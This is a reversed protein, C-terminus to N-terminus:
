PKVPNSVATQKRWQAALEKKGWAEYLDALAGTTEDVFDQNVRPIQEKRATLERQAELLLPEAEAYHKFGTLAQGIQKRTHFIWWDDPDKAMRLALCERLLTLAEDFRKMKILCAATQNMYKLRFPHEPKAKNLTEQLLPLADSFRGMKYYTTGLNALTTLTSEHEPGSKIRKHRLAEEFLPIAEAYRGASQYAVALNSMTTSTEPHDPGLVAKMLKIAEQFLAAAEDYRGAAFYTIGLKNMTTLVEPHNPGKLNRQQKLTEAFLAFARDLKNAQRYADALTSMHILTDDDDPGLAAKARGVAEEYLSLAEAVRGASLRGTAVGRMCWLTEKDDPGLRTKCLKLTEEYLKLAEARRREAEYDQALSVMAKLTEPDDSGLQDRRLALAREHQEIARPFSGLYWYGHGLVQRISAEVVPKNAFSQGITSEAQDVAARITADRGLGGGQGTPGGAALIKKQFFELVAKTEAESQRARTEGQRAQVAATRSDEEAGEARLRQRDANLYLATLGLISGAMILVLTAGLSAIVPQRRCWRWSRGLAGIPRAMIPEGAQFRRLDESLSAASVYRKGPEKQLCKLCITELDRPTDPQLRRPPLPEKEKVQRLVELPTGGRFPTQGTLLEYLIVGLAYIDTAPGIAAREGAMQEPAMYTPTGLLAGSATQQTESEIQKVLGFDGIKLVGDATLLVNAPKLDRHILGSCHAHDMATTLTEVMQAARRADIPVGAAKQALTGGEVFELALYAYGENVGYDHVQVINPHRLKAIAEAEARFRRQHEPGAHVGALIMKIAVYRNLALQRAKYVVGMGGRGLEGLIDYGPLRPRKGDTADRCPPEDMLVPATYTNLLSEAELLHHLAHQQRLREAHQPFRQAYEELDPKEGLERRLLYEGYVLVLALDEQRLVPTDELYMEVPRRDSRLWRAWQDARAAALVEEPNTLATDLM